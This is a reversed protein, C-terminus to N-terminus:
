QDFIGTQGAVKGLEDGAPLVENEVVAQPLLRQLGGQAFKTAQLRDLGDWFGTFSFTQHQCLQSISTHHCFLQFCFVGMPSYYARNAHCTLM